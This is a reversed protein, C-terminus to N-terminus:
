TTKECRENLQPRVTETRKSRDEVSVGGATLFNLQQLPVHSTEKARKWDAVQHIADVEIPKYKSPAVASPPVKVFLDLVLVNVEKRLLSKEKRRRNM